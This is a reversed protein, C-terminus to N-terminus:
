SKHIIENKALDAVNVSETVLVANNAVERPGCIKVLGTGHQFSIRQVAVTTVLAFVAGQLQVIIIDTDLPELIYLRAKEM